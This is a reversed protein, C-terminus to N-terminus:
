RNDTWVTEIFDADEWNSCTNNSGDFGGSSCVFNCNEDYRSLPFDPYFTYVVYVYQKKYYYKDIKARPNQPPNELVYDIKEQM